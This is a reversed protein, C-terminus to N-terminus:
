HNMWVLIDMLNIGLKLDRVLALSAIRSDRFM